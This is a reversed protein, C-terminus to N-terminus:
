SSRIRCTIAPDNFVRQAAKTLLSSVVKLFGLDRGTSVAGQNVALIIARNWAEPRTETGRLLPLVSKLIWAKKGGEESAIDFATTVIKKRIEPWSTSVLKNFNANKQEQVKIDELARESGNEILDDIEYMKWTDLDLGTKINRTKNAGKVYQNYYAWKIGEFTRLPLESNPVCVPYADKFRDFDFSGENFCQRTYEKLRYLCMLKDSDMPIGQQEHETSYVLVAKVDLVTSEIDLDTGTQEEIEELAAYKQEIIKKTEAAAVEASTPERTELEWEQLLFPYKSIDDLISVIYFTNCIHKNVIFHTQTEEIVECNFRETDTDIQLVGDNGIESIGKISDRPIEVKAKLIRAGRGVMQLWLTKSMTPRTNLVTRISPEDVGEVFVQCNVLIKNTDFNGDSFWSLNERREKDKMSGDIARASGPSVENLM